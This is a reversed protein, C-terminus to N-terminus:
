TEILVTLFEPVIAVEYYLCAFAYVDTKFMRKEVDRDSESFLDDDNGDGFLKPAAFNCSM